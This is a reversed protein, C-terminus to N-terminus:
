RMVGDDPEIATSTEMRGKSAKEELVNGGGRAPRLDEATDGQKQEQILRECSDKQSKIVTWTRAVCVAAESIDNMLDGSAADDVAEM